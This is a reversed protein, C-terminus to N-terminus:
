PHVQSPAGMDFMQDAEDLVLFEVDSLDVAKEEILHLLRGPCAVIMDVGLLPGCCVYPQPSPYRPAQTGVMSPTTGLMSPTTGVMSPTTGVMSPTTGLMSPTTGLM